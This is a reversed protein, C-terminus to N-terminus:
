SPYKPMAVIQASQVFSPTTGGITAVLRVYRRVDKTDFVLKQRSAAANTVQTFALGAVDAFTSNDASDQVKVNNTPSTGAGAACDLLVAVQGDYQMLDVGTGNTSSTFTGAALGVLQAFMNAFSRIM